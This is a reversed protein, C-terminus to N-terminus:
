VGDFWVKGNLVGSRAAFGAPLDTRDWPKEVHHNALKV